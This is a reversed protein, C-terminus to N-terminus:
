WIMHVYFKEHPCLSCLSILEIEWCVSLCCCHTPLIEVRAILPIARAYVCCLAWCFFRLPSFLLPFYWCTKYVRWRTQTTCSCQAAKTHHYLVPLLSLLSSVWLKKRYVNRIETLNLNRYVVSRQVFYRKAKETFCEQFTLLSSPVAFFYIKQFLSFIDFFVIIRRSLRSSLFLSFSLLHLSDFLM